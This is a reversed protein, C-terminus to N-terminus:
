VDNNVRGTTQQPSYFFLMIISVKLDLNEANGAFLLRWSTVHGTGQRWTQPKRNVNQVAWGLELLLHNISYPKKNGFVDCDWTQSLISSKLVRECILCISSIVDDRPFVFNRKLHQFYTVKVRTSRESTFKKWGSSSFNQIELRGQLKRKIKYFGWM